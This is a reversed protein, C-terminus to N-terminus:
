VSKHVPGEIFYAISLKKRLSISNFAMFVIFADNKLRMNTFKIM